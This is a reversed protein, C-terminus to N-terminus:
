RAAEMTRGGGAAGSGQPVVELAQMRRQARLSRAVVLLSSGAMLAAAFVPQLLGGAALGLAVANYGFAWALNARVSRQVRRALDIAPPLSALGGPPLILDASERALDSAGGVAIGVTAAALVPGDNLGDGVMAVAGFREGWGRLVAVKGAPLLGARWETIGLEADLPAVAAAGDGSLLLCTLGRRRLAALVEPAEPRPPDAFSAMGRVRGGWGIWTRSGGPAAAPAALAAPLCWGQAAMFAQSGLACHEGGVEGVVGAGPVVELNRAAAPRRRRARLARAVPHDSGAALACARRWVAQRSAGDVALAV